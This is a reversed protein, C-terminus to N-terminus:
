PEIVRSPGAVPGRSREKEEKAELEARARLTRELLRNVVKQGGEPNRRGEGTNPMAVLVEGPQTDEIPVRVVTKKGNPLTIEKYCFLQEVKAPRLLPPLQPPQGGTVNTHENAWENLHTLSSALAEVQAWLEDSKSSDKRRSNSSM